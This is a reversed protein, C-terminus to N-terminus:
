SNSIFQPSITSEQFMNDIRCLAMIFLLFSTYRETPIVVKVVANSLIQLSYLPPCWVASYFMYIWHNYQWSCMWKLAPQLKMLKYIWCTKGFMPLVIYVLHFDTNCADVCSQGDQINKWPWQPNCIWISTANFPLYCVSFNQFHRLKKVGFHHGEGYIWPSSNLWGRKVIDKFM